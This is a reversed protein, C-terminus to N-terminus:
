SRDIKITLEFGKGLDSKIDLDGELLEVRNQIGSLGLGRSSRQKEEWDFGKGNDRYNLSVIKEFGRLNLDIQTAEAYKFTNNLCEQVIRFLHLEEEPSLLGSQYDLDTELQFSAGHTMEETLEELAAELGFKVLTPPLLDHAIQRSSELVGATVQAIKEGVHVVEDEPMGSERLLNANLSVVNLKSSIADHLDQAIRKREEEQTVLTAKLLDRQAKIEVEAKDLQAQIIKKRSFFFFLVIGVALFIIIGLSLVIPTLFSSEGGFIQDDM